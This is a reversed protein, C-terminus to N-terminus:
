TGDKKEVLVPNALWKSNKILRIFGVALLRQVEEVIARLLEENFPRLSQKIPRAKPDVNLKHEVLERPVGPM